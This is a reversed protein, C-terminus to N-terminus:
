NRISMLKILNRHSTLISDVYDIRDNSKSNFLSEIRSIFYYINSTQEVLFWSNPIARVEFSHPKWTSQNKLSWIVPAYKPRVIGNHFMPYKLGACELQRKIWNGLYKSDFHRLINHNLSLRTAELSIVRSSISYINEQLWSSFYNYMMSVIPMKKGRAMLEYPVGWKEIFLHIHTWVFPDGVCSIGNFHSYCSKIFTQFHIIWGLINETRKLKFEIQTSYYERDVEITYEPYITNYMYVYERAFDINNSIEMSIFSFEFEIGIAAVKFQSKM